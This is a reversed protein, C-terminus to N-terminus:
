ITFNKFLNTLIMKIKFNEKKMLMWIAFLLMTIGYRYFLVNGSTIREAYLPLAGLPNTGYFVAALVGAIFGKVRSNMKIPRCEACLASHIPM